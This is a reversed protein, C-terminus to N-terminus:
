YFSEIIKTIEENSKHGVATQTLVGDSGIFVSTPFARVGFEKAAQGKMDFLVKINKQELGAFWKVFDEQSQEGNANPTVVTYVTFGDAQTFLEDVESLGALCISCWSAWYKFYTKQGKFSDNNYINGESDVFEFAPAQEGENTMMVTTESELMDTSEKDSEMGTADQTDKEMNPANELTANGDEPMSEDKEMSDDSAMTDTKVEQMKSQDTKAPSCGAAVLITVMGLAMIKIWSKKMM